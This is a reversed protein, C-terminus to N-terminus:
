REPPPEVMQARQVSFSCPIASAMSSAARLRSTGASDSMVAGVSRPASITSSVYIARMTWFYPPVETASAWRMRLTASRMARRRSAPSRRTTTTEAMPWVVSSSSARAPWIVSLGSSRSSSRRREVPSITEQVRRAMARFRMPRDATAREPGWAPM